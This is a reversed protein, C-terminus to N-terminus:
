SLWIANEKLMIKYFARLGKYKGRRVLVGGGVKCKWKEEMKKSQTAAKLPLFLLNILFGGEGVGERRLKQSGGGKFLM